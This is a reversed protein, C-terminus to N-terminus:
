GEFFKNLDRRDKTSPKGTGDKRYSSQQLEYLRYKELEEETTLDEIFDAVLKAGLRSKPLDVIRYEFLANHRQVTLLDGSRVESSPKVQLANLKVKGKSVLETALVRTKAIRVFWVYKDIRMPLGAFYHIFIGIM